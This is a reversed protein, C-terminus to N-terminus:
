KCVTVDPFKYHEAFIFASLKKKKNENGNSPDDNEAMKTEDIERALCLPSKFLRM